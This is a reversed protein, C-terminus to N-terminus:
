TKPNRLKVPSIRTREGANREKQGLPRRATELTRTSVSWEHENKSYVRIGLPGPSVVPPCLAVKSELTKAEPRDSSDNTHVPSRVSM